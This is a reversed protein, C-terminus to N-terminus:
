TCSTTSSKALWTRGTSDVTIVRQQGGVGPTKRCITFTGSTSGFGRPSFQFAGVSGNVRFGTPAAGQATILTGDSLRLLWGTHWTTNGSCSSGDDSACLTVNANRKFAEARALRVTATVQNSLAALRSNLTADRYSPVAIGLLIAVITIAVLLEVLTFGAAHRSAQHFKM